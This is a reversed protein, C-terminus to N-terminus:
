VLLADSLKPFTEIDCRDKEKWYVYYRRRMALMKRRVEGDDPRFGNSGSSAHCGRLRYVSDDDAFLPSVMGCEKNSYMWRTFDAFM